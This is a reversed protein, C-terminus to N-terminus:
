IHIHQSYAAAIVAFLVSSSILIFSLVKQFYGEQGIIKISEDM